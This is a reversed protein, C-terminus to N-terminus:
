YEVYVRVKDKIQGRDVSPGRPALAHQSRARVRPSIAPVRVILLGLAGAGAALAQPCSSKLLSPLLSLLPRAARACARACVCVYVCVCV